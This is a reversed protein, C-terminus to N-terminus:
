RRDVIPVIPEGFLDLWTQRAAEHLKAPSVAALPAALQALRGRDIMRDHIVPGDTTIGLHKAMGEVLLVGAYSEPTGWSAKSFAFQAVNWLSFQPTLPDNALQSTYASLEHRAREVSRRPVGPSAEPPGLLAELV